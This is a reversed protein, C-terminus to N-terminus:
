PRLFRAISPGNGSPPEFEAAVDVFGRMLAIDRPTRNLTDRLDPNAGARLLRRTVQLLGHLAALHLPGFGRSERVDLDVGEDLLPELTALLIDEQAPTGPEARAGLLLLLPTLQGNAARAPDAGALLLTDFLAMVRPREMASFAYLAACHLATLGQDDSAHIDAGATLLRACMDPLGRAAALMLLSVNGPLRQDRDAGEALLRQVIAGRGMSIAASLPTAGGRTALNRDAGRQLLLEVVPMHGAGAARLLASCGQADVADVPLDLDILRRVADADGAIAAAPVDASRLPRSPLAWGRWDLWDAMGRDGAALAIGLPTQGDAARLTPSAGHRLLQRVWRDRKLATAVHLAGMGRADTADPDAGRELLRATLGDWGLRVALPLARDGQPNSGFPDAGRDLVALALPELMGALPDALRAALFRALGGAGAPSAGADLLRQISGSAGRQDLLRWLLGHGNADRADADAGHRLLWDINSPTYLDADLLLADLGGAPVLRPLAPDIRDSDFDRLADRILELPLRDPPPAPADIAAAPTPAPPQLAAYLAWRGSEAALDLPRKGHADAHDPDVGLQLLRQVLPLSPSDGLASLALANRGDADIAQVDARAQLLCAAVAAHGGLAAELLPTREGDDRADADAGAALLTEAIGAHGAAAAAHLASRGRRDRADVSAKHRLLLQVGAPDDDDSGAAAVLSPTAGDRQPRAGRELLFRALRWNGATCAIGLPTLGDGNVAELDATADLLLAAVGPDTSRAANHLPTNGDAAAIRPDAGNALLTMVADPRGHWSDRTAAHLPALGAHRANMDVGRAILERLLRLDPLVAALVALSRQDRDTPDPLARPNGGAALLQLTQEVRGARAAAYLDADPPASPSGAAPPTPAITSAHPAAVADPAAPAPTDISPRVAAAVPTGVPSAVPVAAPASAVPEHEPAAATAPALPLAVPEANRLAVPQRAPGARSSADDEALVGALRQLLGHLAPWAVVSGAALTWRVASPLLGPWALLLLSVLMGLAALAAGLGRWDAQDIIPIRRAALLGTGDREIRGWRPWNRWLAILVFGSLLSLAVASGLARTRLLSHLPWAVLAAVAVGALLWLLLRNLLAKPQRGSGSQRRDQWFAGLLVHAPIGCAAAVIGGLGTAATLLMGTGLM